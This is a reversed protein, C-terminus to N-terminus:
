FKEQLRSESVVCGNSSKTVACLSRYNETKAERWAADIRWALLALGAPPARDRGFLAADVTALLPAINGRVMVKRWLDHDAKSLERIARHFTALDGRHAARRLRGLAAPKAAFLRRWKGSGAAESSAFLYIVAFTSVFSTLGAILPRLSLLGTLLGADSVPRVAGIFVVRQEPM